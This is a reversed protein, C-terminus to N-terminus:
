FADVIQRADNLASALESNTTDDSSISSGSSIATLAQLATCADVVSTAEWTVLDVPAPHATVLPVTFPGLRIHDGVAVVVGTVEVGLHWAAILRGATVCTAFVRGQDGAAMQMLYKFSADAPM